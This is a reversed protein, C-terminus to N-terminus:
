GCQVSASKSCCVLLCVFMCLSMTVEQAATGCVKKQEESLGGRCHRLRTGVLCPLGLVHRSGLVSHGGLCNRCRGRPGRIGRPSRTMSKVELGHAGHPIDHHVYFGQRTNIM